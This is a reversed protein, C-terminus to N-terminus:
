GDTKGRERVWLKGKKLGIVAVMFSRIDDRAVVGSGVGMDGLVSDKM